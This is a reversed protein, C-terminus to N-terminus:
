MSTRWDDSNQHAVQTVTCRVTSDTTSLTPMPSPMARTICRTLRPLFTSRVMIMRGQDTDSYAAPM